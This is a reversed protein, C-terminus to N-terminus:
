CGAATRSGCCRGRWSRWPTRCLIGCTWAPATRARRSCRPSRAALREGVAEAGTRNMLREQIGDEDEAPVDAFWALHVTLDAPAASAALAAIVGERIGRNFDAPAVQQM